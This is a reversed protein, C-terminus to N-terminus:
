AVVGRGPDRAADLRLQPGPHGVAAVRGTDVKGFNVAPPTVAVMPRVFGSVPIEIRKQKPHNTRVLVHDAVPGVPAEKSLTM